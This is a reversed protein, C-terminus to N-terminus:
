RYIEIIFNLNIELLMLLLTLLILRAKDRIILKNFYKNWNIKCKKNLIKHLHIKIQYKILHILDM